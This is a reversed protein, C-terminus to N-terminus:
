PIQRIFAALDSLSGRYSCEPENESRDLIFDEVLFTDMGAKSASLDELTDNGAMLCNEPACGIISAIEFYYGPNPKCFHMNEMTTVYDFSSKSLGSWRLRELTAAAPFIPNTALVLKLGKEEAARIVAESYPHEKGWCSLPPFDNIYFDKIIPEIRDYTQSIGACFHDYFVQENKKAPDSNGVMEGTANFLLQVFIEKSVMTKFKDALKELYAQIFNDMDINLLTGDLDLLVARYSKDPKLTM